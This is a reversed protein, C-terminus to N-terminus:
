RRLTINTMYTLEQDNLTYEILIWYDSSPLVRGRYTGDWAPLNPTLTKILKGYRDFIYVIYPCGQVDELHWTDNFGDNNPTFFKRVSFCQPEECILTLEAFMDLCGTGSEEVTFNTYIGFGLNELLIIGQANAIITETFITGDIEYSVIYVTNPDGGQFSISGDNIGCGSPNTVSATVTFNTSDLVLDGITASCSTAVEEVIISTYNGAGLNDLLIVGSADATVSVTQAAGNLMYSVTYTENATGSQFSIAGDNIGCGSPNIVSATVTFNTSDLVLDGITTSCSTAVEEVIISTYNGADLNNLLIVGSADATVSVTQAAGNLMFSVSYTENATGSQFSITGDNMGCGSPNIVSATVTFNTSDLVLDGITTTCSTAVEEVIISTYNGAGLNDLLIVGSADATVSVTQGAGNLMYSVTYTENAIGSQFSITGDNMGCGSPDTTNPTLMLSVGEIQISGIGDSCSSVTDIVMIFEYLGESLNTILIEGNADATYTSQIQNSQFFYDVVYSQNPVLGAILITGDASNCSTVDSETFSANFDPQNIFIDGLNDICNLSTNLVEFSFYTGGLLNSLIIEGDADSTFNLVETVGNFQYTIQYAFNAGLNSVVISADAAGCISPLQTVFNVNLNNGNLTVSGVNDSCGITTDTVTINTYIGTSLGTIILEGNSNSTTSQFLTSGDIEYSVHYSTNASVNGLTIQGDTAGCATPDQSNLVSYALEGLELIWVAGKDNGNESDKYAGVAFRYIGNDNLVSVGGGFFDGSNLNGSFCNEGFTYMREESVTGDTNLEILFFAGTQSSLTPNQQQLAGVVIEIKGDNDIDVVGDISEGFLANVTLTGNLGGVLNSVKQYDKVTGNANLFLVYFSGSNSIQDDDRYAGVVIDTVGDQDLDGINVVSGGFYDEFDLPEFFNGQTDSIKQFSNVTFDANMFLIWVAGRRSGGDADRRSGVALDQIGDGNLDGINEIDTGFIADGNIFGTFGGQTDSIKSHSFVTGDNNLSLIWVAGHWFGGDGDYDAGVALEIRGDNNLDGLFAVAGGFRDDPDLTGTFNGSTDSIKTHSLVQNNADLFLIWVAGKDIGGDDDTYAGVAVDNIGNGDLDGIYDISIGFNDNIDLNGTFNGNM